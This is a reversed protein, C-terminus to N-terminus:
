GTAEAVSRERGETWKFGCSVCTARLMLQDSDVDRYGEVILSQDSCRACNDTV